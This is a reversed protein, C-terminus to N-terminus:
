AAGSGVLMGGVVVAGGGAGGACCGAGGGAGGALAGVAPVSPGLSPVLAPAHTRLWSSRSPHQMAEEERACRKTAGRVDGRGQVGASAAAAAAGAAVLEGPAAAACNARSSSSDYLGHLLSQGAPQPLVRTPVTGARAATGAPTHAGCVFLRWIWVGWGTGSAKGRRKREASCRKTGQKGRERKISAEKSEQCPVPWSRTLRRYEKKRDVSAAVLAPGPMAPAPNHQRVACLERSNPSSVNAICYPTSNSPCGPGVLMNCLLGCAHQMLAPTLQGTAAQRWIALGAPSGVTRRLAAKSFCDCGHWLSALCPRRRASALLPRPRGGAACLAPLHSTLAAFFFITRCGENRCPAARLPACSCEAWSAQLHRDLGLSGLFSSLLQSVAAVDAAGLVVAPGRELQQQEAPPAASEDVAASAAFLQAEAAPIDPTGGAAQQPQPSEEATPEAAAAAPPKAVVDASAADAAAAAVAAAAAALAGDTPPATLKRAPSAAGSSSGSAGASGSSSSSGPASASQSICNAAAAAAGSDAPRPPLPPRKGSPNPQPPLRRVHAAGRFSALSTLVTVPRYTLSTRVAFADSSAGDDSGAAAGGDAAQEADSGAPPPAALASPLLYRSCSPPLSSQLPGPAYGGSALSLLQQVSLEADQEAYAHQAASRQAGAPGEAPQHQPGEAPQQVQQRKARLPLVPAASRQQQQQDQQREAQEPAAAAGPQQEQQAAAPAAAGREEGAAKAAATAQTASQTQTAATASRREAPAAEVQAAAAPQAAQKAKKKKGKGGSGGSGAGGAAAKGAAKGSESNGAPAEIFSLLEDLSREDQQQQQQQQLVQRQATSMSVEGGELRLSVGSGELQQRRQQLEKRRKAYLRNLLRVRPDPAGARLPSAIPSASHHHQSPDLCLASPVDTPFAPLRGTADLAGAGPCGLSVCCPSLLPCM